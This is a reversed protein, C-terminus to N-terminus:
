YLEDIYTKGCRYKRDSYDEGLKVIYKGREDCKEKTSFVGCFTEPGEKGSYKYIDKYLLVYVFPRSVQSKIHKVKAIAM